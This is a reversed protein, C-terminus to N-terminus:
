GIYPDIHASLLQACTMKSDPEVAHERLFKVGFDRVTIAARDAPSTGALRFRVHREHQEAVAQVREHTDCTGASKYRGDEDTYM